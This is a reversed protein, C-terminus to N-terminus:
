KKERRAKWKRRLLSPLFSFAGKVSMLLGWGWQKGCMLRILPFNGGKKKFFVREKRRGTTPFCLPRWNSNEGRRPLQKVVQWKSNEGGRFLHLLMKHSFVHQRERESIPPPLQLQVKERRRRWQGLFNRKLFPHIAIVTQLLLLHFHYTAAAVSSGSHLLLPCFGCFHLKQTCEWAAREGQFPLLCGQFKNPIMHPFGLFVSIEVSIYISSM